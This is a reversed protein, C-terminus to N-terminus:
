NMELAKGAAIGVARRVGLPGYHFARQMRGARGSAGVGVRSGRQSGWARSRQAENVHERCTRDAHM